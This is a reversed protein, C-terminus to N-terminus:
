FSLGNWTIITKGAVVETSLYDVLAFTDNQSMQDAIDGRENRGHWIKQVGDSTLTAACSIGLPRFPSWDTAGETIIKAIEIDFALYEKSSNHSKGKNPKFYELFKNLM